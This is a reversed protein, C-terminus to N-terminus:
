AAARDGLFRVANDHMILRIEEDNMGKLEAVYDRPELLGEPHPYDSGFMVRDAGVHDVLGRLNDEWFPHFYINRRMAELPPEPFMNPTQRYARELREMLTSVWETGNEVSAIRLEPFRTLTGHCVLSAVADEIDRHGAAVRRFASQAFANTSDSPEWLDLYPEIISQAAHICVPIGVEQVRAWFPDFEPLGFSRHGMYGEPPAPRMLVAKAGRELVWDLEKLAEDVIGLTIVPTAYIRHQYDFTWTEAMWQNLAHIIAHTLEPDREVGQEVLNALTPYVLIQDIRQEDMLELRASPDDRYSAPPRIPDGAMERLTLGEPNDASFYPIFKGPGAVVSFTPNPIYDIIRNQISVLTRREIQIFRLKNKYREPLHRLLADPSEYMHNDADFITMADFDIAM